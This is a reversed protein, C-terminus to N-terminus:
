HTDNEIFEKVLEFAIKANEPLTSLTYPHVGDFTHSGHIEEINLHENSINKAINLEEIPVTEDEQPHILLVKKSIKKLISSLDFRDQNDLVDEALQYYLPMEQNTRSNHIYIVGTTKGITLIKKLM